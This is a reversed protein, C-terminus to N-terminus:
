GGTINSVANYLISGGSSGGGGSTSGTSTSATGGSAGTAGSKGYSEPMSVKQTGTVQVEVFTLPIQRAYGTELSKQVTMNELGMNKYTKDNTVITVLKRKARMSELRAVVDGVRNQCGASGGFRLLHTVPTNTVFVTMELTIPKLIMTDSVEYGEEVPYQPIENPYSTSSDILADVEIGDISVPQINKM